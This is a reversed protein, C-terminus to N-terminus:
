ETGAPQRPLEIDVVVPWHDSTTLDSCRSVFVRRVTTMLEAPLLIHDIMTMVDDPDAVGNENRDWHCTFRDAQRVIREAVNVLEPGPTATDYDKLSTLVNTATSRDPDRDPVDPDYDNLDGLVVPAYGRAVIERRVIRRAVAAEATRRANSYADSPDSKLHLGLFGLKHGHIRVFAFSRGRRDM